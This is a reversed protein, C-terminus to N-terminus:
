DLSKSLILLPFIQSKEDTLEDSITLSVQGLSDICIGRTQTSNDLKKAMIKSKKRHAYLM